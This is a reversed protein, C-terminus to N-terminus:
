PVCTPEEISIKFPFLVSSIEYLLSKRPFYTLRAHQRRVRVLCVIANICSGYITKLSWVVGRGHLDYRCGSPERVTM